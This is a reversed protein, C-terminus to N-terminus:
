YDIGFKLLYSNTQAFKCVKELDIIEQKIWNITNEDIFWKRIGKQLEPNKPNEIENKLDEIFNTYAQLDRIIENPFLYEKSMPLQGKEEILNEDGAFNYTRSGYKEEIFKQFYECEVLANLKYIGANPANEIPKYNTNNKEYIVQFYSVSM